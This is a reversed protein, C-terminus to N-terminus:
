DLRIRPDIIGYLVDSLLYGFITALAAYITVAMVVPYDRQSVAQVVTRGVGPWSFITETIVAGGLIGTLAPGIFTAIPILANRAAHKFWVTRDSLGKSRATRIYDQNIVDLMSARTFRSYGAIVGTALVFTPLILYQIRDYIPPCSDSISARCRGQLPLLQLTVGFLLILMLGLWFSPIADFVVAIIRTANDFLGGRRVAAMIGLFIGVAVGIVLSGIGLELTAPLRDALVDLVPRHEVFSNGFDGRLVGKSTGPPLPEGNPGTVSLIFAHDAVGDGNTDWRMWDDGLLWRLYQVPWPDNVGLRAAIAAKEQPSTGPRFAMAGVPGGPAATMLAYTLLTIGFMLPIAQLTRRIIYRLM